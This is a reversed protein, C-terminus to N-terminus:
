AHTDARRPIGGRLSDEVSAFNRARLWLRLLHRKREPEDFDAYAERPKDSLGHGRMDMAVLRYDKALDSNLQRTWSLWCQSFGHLFLIPCGGSNGTEVLHLQVGGGGTINHHKM